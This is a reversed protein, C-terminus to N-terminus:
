KNEIKLPCSKVQKRIEIIIEEKQKESLGTVSVIRGLIGSVQICTLTTVLFISM